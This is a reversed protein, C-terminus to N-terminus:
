SFIFGIAKIETITPPTNEYINLTPDVAIFEINIDITTYIIRDVM